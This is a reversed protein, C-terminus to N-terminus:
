PIKRTSPPWRHSWLLQFGAALIDPKESHAPHGGVYRGIVVSLELSFPWDARPTWYKGAQLRFLPAPGKRKGGNDYAAYAEVGADLFEAGVLSASEEPSLHVYRLHAGGQPIGDYGDGLHAPEARLAFGAQWGRHFEFFGQVGALGDWDMGAGFFLVPVYRGQYALAESPDQGRAASWALAVALCAKWWSARGPSRLPLKALPPIGPRHAPIM